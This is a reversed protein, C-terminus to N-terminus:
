EIYLDTHKLSKKEAEITLQCVKDMATAVKELDGHRASLYEAALKLTKDFENKTLIEDSDNGIEKSIRMLEAAAAELDANARRVVAACEQMNAINVAFAM